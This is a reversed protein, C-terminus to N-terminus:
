APSFSPFITCPSMPMPEQGNAKLARAENARIKDIAKNVHTMINFVESVQKWCLLKAWRALFWSYTTTLHNKGQAWPVQEVKIGCGPCNVRRMAYLFFVAIGWLPVFEFRRPPLVDYGPRKRGCGSCVPRSGQRPRIRIELAMAGPSSQWRVSTYVFGRQPQVRNLISSILMGDEDWGAIPYDKDVDMIGSLFVPHEIKKM